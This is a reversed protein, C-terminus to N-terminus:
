QYFSVQVALSIKFFPKIYKQSRLCGLSESLVSKAELSSWIAVSPETVNGDRFIGGWLEM